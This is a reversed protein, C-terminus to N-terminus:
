RAKLSLRLRRQVMGVDADNMVNAFRLPLCEDGHLM